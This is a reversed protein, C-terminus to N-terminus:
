SLGSAGDTARRGIEKLWGVLEGNPDRARLRELTMKDVCAGNLWPKAQSAKARKKTEELEDWTVAANAAHRLKAVATPVDNWDEVTITLGDPAERIADAHLYNELERKKTSRASNNNGRANVADCQEQYKPPAPPENDADYLHYEPIGLTHFFHEHVWAKLNAGGLPVFVIRGEAELRVLSPISSDAANLIRSVRRLFSIDNPGEVMVFLRLRRDAVVGLETAIELNVQENSAVVESQGSGARRVLRLASTPLQAALAPTHTSIMVQRLPHQAISQLAELLLAQHGPHQSTEPEEIAYIVSADDSKGREAQARFFSLLILRRVGSGRKNVPIQDDGRLSISIAGDWKTKFEPTLKAALAPDIEQLKKLTDSAVQRVEKEVDDEIAKLATAQTLLSAKVAAKLPEQAEDDQDGSKRDSKFLHFAPLHKTLAAFIDKMGVADVPLERSALKLDTCTGRLAQRMVANVSLKVDKDLGAAKCRDKLEKNSLFLLDKVTDATPHDAVIFSAGSGGKRPWRKVIELKGDARLLLEDKLSTRYDSDIVVGTPLDDFVGAVAVDGTNHVCADAPDLKSGNFFLELAELLTSKGVDNRGVVATLSDVGVVVSAFRRFNTLKFQVLRM